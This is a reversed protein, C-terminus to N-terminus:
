TRTGLIKLAEKIRESTESIGGDVQKLAERVNRASYGMAVLAELADTNDRLAATTGEDMTGMKDKLELIIKQANKSGIGSVRTLYSTDGSAIATRLTAAPALNLIALASKPGIGSVSILLSFFDLEKKDLFGYLDLANERVVLHTWFSITGGKKAPIAALVDETTYVRYGVGSVDLVVNSTERCIITGSLRAIM